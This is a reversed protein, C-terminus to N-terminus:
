LVVWFVLKIPVPSLKLFLLRLQCLLQENHIRKHLLLSLLPFLVASSTPFDDRHSGSDTAHWTFYQFEAVCGLSGKCSQFKIVTNHCNVGEWLTVRLLIAM